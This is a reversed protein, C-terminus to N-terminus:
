LGGRSTRRHHPVARNMRAVRPDATYPSGGSKPPPCVTKRFLRSYIISLVFIFVSMSLTIWFPGLISRRYRQRIDDWGMVLWVPWLRM